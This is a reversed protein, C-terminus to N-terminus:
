SFRSSVSEPVFRSMNALFQRGVKEATRSDFWSVHEPEHTQGLMLGIAITTLMWGISSPGHNFPRVAFREILAGACAAAVVAAIMAAALPFGLSALIAASMAGLMFVEGHTFNAASTAAWMMYFGIAILAYVGGGSLGSLVYQVVQEM